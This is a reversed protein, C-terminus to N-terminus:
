DRSNGLYMKNGKQEPQRDSCWIQCSTGQDKMTINYRFEDIKIISEAKCDTFVLTKFPINFAKGNLNFTGFPKSEIMVFRNKDFIDIPVNQKDRIDVEFTLTANAPIKKEFGTSNLYHYLCLANSLNNENYNEYTDFEIDKEHELARIVEYYRKAMQLETVDKVTNNGTNLRIKDLYFENGTFTGIIFDIWKIAEDNNTYTEKSNFHMNITGGIPDIETKITCISVEFDIHVINGESYRLANVKENFDIAKMKIAMKIPEISPAIALYSINDKSNFTIGNITHSFSIMDNATLRYAPITLNTGRITFRDNSQREWIIEKISQPITLQIKEKKETGKKSNVNEIVNKDELNTTTTYLNANLSLFADYTEKSVMKNCFDRVVTEKLRTLIYGLVNEAYGDIYTVHNKRLQNIKAVPMQPAILFLGKMNNNIATRVKKIIELVNDDELSYGIFVVHKRVFAQKLEEWILNFRKNKFYHQYDSESIVISDPDNLTTIDGHLKYISVRNQFSYACGANTTILNKESPLFADEILTDYNTTFIQRFHPIKRLTGQDSTDEPKFEFLRKLICMLENRGYCENIFAESVNRLTKDKESFANAFAQGGEQLIANIITCVKPAGAKISFGSGVFLAIDEKRIYRILRELDKNM